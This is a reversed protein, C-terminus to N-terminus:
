ASLRAARLQSAACSGSRGSKTMPWLPARQMTCVHGRILLIEDTDTEVVVLAGHYDFPELM